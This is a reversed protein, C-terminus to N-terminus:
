WKKRMWQPVDTKDPKSVPQKIYQPQPATNQYPPNQYPPNQYRNQSVYSPRNKPNIYESKRNQYAVEEEYEEEYEEDEEDYNEKQSNLGSAIVTVIIEDELAENIAVGFIINVEGKTAKRVIDVADHAENLTISSGGTVNVIADKAGTISAELLPSVIAKNAAIVARDSGEAIGVGFLVTGKDTMINKVDAFDLNILSPIAILDTITQVGQRLIQDAEKFSEKVPIGGIIQLLRDNSVVILSDVHKKLEESGQMAYGNRVRGEFSFPTTVIGITLAGSSKAIEAVIPAAGTGTGGGMGAAIFIMDAGQLCAAIEEKSEIAAQRGIDPNAGAGLGKSLNKGLILRNKAKSSSLVQADTNAVIFDVGQVGAEIMRNVANNGAGGVGIVKISAVQEFEQFEKM